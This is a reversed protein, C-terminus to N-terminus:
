VGVRGQMELEDMWGGWVMSGPVIMKEAGTSKWCMNARETPAFFLLLSSFM